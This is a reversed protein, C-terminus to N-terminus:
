SAAQKRLAAARKALPTASAKVELLVENRRFFPLTWPPNYFALLPEGFTEIGHAIAYRRLEDTKSGLLADNAIGSFRIALMTKAELPKLVVRPDDPSPLTDMSWGRPMTFRVVWGDQESQQGVPATMAIKRAGQQEVPATMAVTTNPRNAGFIYAAILGFGESLAERRGGRLSVEAVITADYARLEIAVSSRLVGYTPQEVRSTLPGALAGAVVALTGAGALSWYLTRRGM